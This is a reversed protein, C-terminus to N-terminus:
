TKPTSIGAPVIVIKKLNELIQLLTTLNDHYSEFRKNSLWPFCFIQKDYAVAIASMARFIENGASTLPREFRQDSLSFLDKIDNATCKIKSYELGQMVLEKVSINKAFLPYSKDMYCSFKSLEDLSVYENNILARPQEFLVFDEPKYKYMSLLYSIAWIGSDIEGSMKNIGVTFSFESNNLIDHASYFASSCYIYGDNIVTVNKIKM